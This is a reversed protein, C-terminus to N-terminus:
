FYFDTLYNKLILYTDMPKEVPLNHGVDDMIEIKSNFIHNNIEKAHYPPTFVDELGAVILTPINIKVLSDKINVKLCAKISAKLAPISTSEAMIDKVEEFLEENNVKFEPTYTLDICTDFFANFGADDLIKALDLLRDKLHTDVYCFSSIITLSQVKDPYDLALEQIVAGGMSHGIFHAKSIELSDLLRVIDSALLEMNYPGPTKSSQGHGRLDVALVRYNDKLLPILGGWVTHDSAMGHVLVVPYGTGVDQYYLELEEITISKM